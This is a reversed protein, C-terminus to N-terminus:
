KQILTHNKRYFEQIISERRGRIVALNDNRASKGGYFPFEKESILGIAWIKEAPSSFRSTALFSYLYSEYEFSVDLSSAILATSLALDLGVFNEGYADLCIADIAIDRLAEEPTLFADRGKEDFVEKKIGTVEIEPHLFYEVRGDRKLVNRSVDSCFHPHDKLILKTTESASSGIKGANEFSFGNSKSSATLAGCGALFIGLLAMRIKQM